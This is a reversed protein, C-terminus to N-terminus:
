SAATCSVTGSTSGVAVSGSLPWSLATTSPTSQAPPCSPETGQYTEASSDLNWSATGPTLYYPPSYLALRPDFNYDKSYGTQIGGGGFTGVAGRSNQQISGYITLTGEVSPGGGHTGSAFWNNVGFSQQLGLITADVTLGAGQPSGSPTAPDCLPATPGTLPDTLVPTANNCSALVNGNNDVPRSIEVYNQAILGLVDNPTAGTASNYNCLSEHPTGAWSACDAYKIPGDVVVDNNASVTLHGSLSGQVFVDGETDPVSTQGQYCGPCTAQTQTDFTCTGGGGGCSAQYGDFPNVGAITPNTSPNQDVYIVGNAPLSASSGNTPCTNTNGAGFLTVGHAAATATEPSLVKMTSGTLTVTTPGVYYCGNAQAYSGLKLNDAPITELNKQSHSSTAPNYNGMDNTAANACQPPGGNNGDLPDVFQCSPDATTAGWFPATTGFDPQGDVFISDNSFVPGNLTDTPAFFVPTCSGSNNYGTAWWYQCSSPVGSSEFNTWWVNDLFGNAPVFKAITSYYADHSGGFGAAGVVQVQLSILAKTTSDLVAQPNDFKYYEPVVGHGLDTDPVQSWTGYSLGACQANGNSATNCAALYPNANVADQYTNLGSALARYAYRQVNAQTLIPDHNAINTVMVGGVTTLLVSIAVVLVIAAQGAESAVRRRRWRAPFGGAPSATTGNRDARRRRASTLIKLM